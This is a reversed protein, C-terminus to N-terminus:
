YFSCQLFVEFSKYFCKGKNFETVIELTAVGFWVGGLGLYVAELLMNKAAAVRELHGFGVKKM